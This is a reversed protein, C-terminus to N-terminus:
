SDRSYTNTQLVICASIVQFRANRIWSEFSNRGGVLAEGPNLTTHRQQELVHAMSLVTQNSNCCSWSYRRWDAPDNMRRIWSKDMVHSFLYDDPVVVASLLALLPLYAIKPCGWGRSIYGLRPKVEFFKDRCSERQICHTYYFGPLMQYM